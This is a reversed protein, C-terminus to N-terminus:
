RRLRLGSQVYFYRAARITLALLLILIVFALLLDILTVDPLPTQVVVSRVGWIGLIIGGIGLVLENLSRLGLAFLGSASILLVLVVTLIRLYRPRQWQLDDVLLFATPDTPSRVAAPDIPVPPSMNLRAVQDELTLSVRQRVQDPSDITQVTGDPLTAAITLGLRLNYDDFPYRQPTGHVPLQVAFTYPGSANPLTITASPPLGHRQADSGLSYLTATIAPCTAPCVRDGSVSLTAARTTEDLGTVAVNVFATTPSFSQDSGVEAGTFLDYVPTSAQGRLEGIMSDLATPLLGLVVVVVAITIWFAILYRRRQGPSVAEASDDDISTAHEADDSVM